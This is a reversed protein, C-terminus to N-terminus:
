RDPANELPMCPEPSVVDNWPLSSWLKALHPGPGENNGDNNQPAAGSSQQAAELLSSQMLFAPVRELPGICGLKALLMAELSSSSTTTDAVSDKTEDSSEIGLKARLAEEKRTELALASSMKDLATLIEKVAQTEVDSQNNHHSKSRGKKLVQDAGWEGGSEKLALAILGQTWVEAEDKDHVLAAVHNTFSDSVLHYHADVESREHHTATLV